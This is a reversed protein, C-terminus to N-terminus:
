GDLELQSSILEKALEEADKPTQITGLVRAEEVRELIFKFRPSPELLFKKKLVDGNLLTPSDQAPLYRQTYFNLIRHIVPLFYELDQQNGLRIALSLLLSSVLTVGSRHIFQYIAADEKFGIARSRVGSLLIQAFKLTQDVFRIDSNSLRFEKLIDNIKSDPCSTLTLFYILSSWKILTYYHSASLFDNILQTHNELFQDPHNLINEMERFVNLLEEWQTRNAQSGPKTKLEEIGPLLVEILGTPEMLDLRSRRAGMMLLLEYTIREHAVKKLKTCHTEIQTLTQPEIDFELTSAFRFARLLRLPDENFVQERVARIIKKHLDGQGDFPDILNQKEEIFDTLAVSMANITFDRQALDDEITEGQLTTFDFILGEDLVVRYTEHGPTIDMPVLTGQVKQAWTCAVEPAQRTAFDFDMCPRDLLHDRVTGGVLYVTDELQRSVLNIEEFYKKISLDM